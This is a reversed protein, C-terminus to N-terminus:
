KSARMAAVNANCQWLDIYQDTNRKTFVRTTTGNGPRVLQRKQQGGRYTQRHGFEQQKRAVNTQKYGAILAILVVM